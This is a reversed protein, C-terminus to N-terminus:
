RRSAMIWGDGTDEPAPPETLVIKKINITRFRKRDRKVVGSAEVNCHVLDVFKEGNEVLYEEDDLASLMVATVRGDDDWGAPTLVGAITEHVEQNRSDKKKKM